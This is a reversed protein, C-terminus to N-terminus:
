LGHSFPKHSFPSTIGCQSLPFYIGAGLPPRTDQVLWGLRTLSNWALRLIFPHTHGLSHFVGPVSWVEVGVQTHTHTHIRLSFYILMCTIFFFFSIFEKEPQQESVWLYLLVWLGPVLCYTSRAELLAPNILLSPLSWSCAHHSKSWPFLPVFLTYHILPRRFVWPIWFCSGRGQSYLFM